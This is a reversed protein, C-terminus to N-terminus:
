ARRPRSGARIAAGIEAGTGLLRQGGTVDLFAEDLAIPEVLPTFAAFIAHVAASEAQLRRLAAPPVRRAPCLRRARAM